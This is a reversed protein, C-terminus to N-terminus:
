NKVMMKCRNKTNIHEHFNNTFFIKYNYIKTKPDFFNVTYFFLFGNKPNAMLVAELANTGPLCIPTPPLHSHSYTNFPTKVRLDKHYVHNRSNQGIGYLVCADSQLRMKKQLRLLFCSAIKEMDPRFKGEKQVISALIVWDERTLPFNKPRKAWLKEIKQEFNKRALIIIFNRDNGVLFNYTDPFISGEPLNKVKEGTLFPNSNLMEMVQKSTTGEIFTISRELNIPKKTHFLRLLDFFSAHAPTVWWGHPFPYLFASIVHIQPTYSIHRFTRYIKQRSEFNAVFPKPNKGPQFLFLGFILGFIILIRM